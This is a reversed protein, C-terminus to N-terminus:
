FILFIQKQFDVQSMDDYNRLVSIRYIKNERFVFSWVLEGTYGGVVNEFKVDVIMADDSFKRPTSDLWEINESDLLGNFMKTLIEQIQSQADMAQESQHVEINLYSVGGSGISVKNLDESNIIFEEPYEFQFGYEENIYTNPSVEEDSVVELNEFMLDLIDSHEDNGVLIYKKGEGEKEKVLNFDELFSDDSNLIFLKIGYEKKQLEESSPAFGYVAIYDGQNLNDRQFYWYNHYKFKLSFYENEYSRWKTIDLEDEESEESIVEQEEQDVEQSEELQIDENIEVKEEQNCASLVLGLSLILLTFSITKITKNM